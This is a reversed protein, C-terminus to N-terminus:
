TKFSIRALFIKYKHYKILLIYISYNIIKYDFYIYILIHAKVELVFKFQRYSLSYAEIITYWSKCKNQNGLVSRWLNVEFTNLMTRGSVLIKVGSESM